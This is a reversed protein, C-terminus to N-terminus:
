DVNLKRFHQAVQEEPKKDLDVGFLNSTKHLLEQRYSDEKIEAVFNEVIQDCSGANPGTYDDPLYEVPLCEMPIQEYVSEMTDHIRIRDLWKQPTFPRAFAMLAEFILGANYYHFAKFRGPTVKQWEKKLKAMDKNMMKTLLKMTVGTFDQLFVVGNVQTMETRAMYDQFVASSKMLAKMNFTKENLKGIRYLLLQCGEKTRKPLPIIFGASLQKIVEPDHTDVDKFAEPLRTRLLLNGEIMERARLQSFKAGRLFKLMTLTDTSPCRIHPQAQIWERLAQVAALRDEPNENLEAKAKKISAEDLTCVYDSDEAPM